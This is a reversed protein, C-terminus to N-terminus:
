PDTSNTHTTSRVSNSANPSESTLATGSAPATRGLETRTPATIPKHTRPPAGRTSSAHHHQRVRQRIEDPAFALDCDASADASLALMLVFCFWPLTTTM